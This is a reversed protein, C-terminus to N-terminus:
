YNLPYQVHRAKEVQLIYMYTPASPTLYLVPVGSSLRDGSDGREGWKEGGGMRFAARLLM